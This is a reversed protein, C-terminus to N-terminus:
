VGKLTARHCARTAGRSHFQLVNATVVDTVRDVRQGKALSKGASNVRKVSDDKLDGEKGEVEFGLVRRLGRSTNTKWDDNSLAM